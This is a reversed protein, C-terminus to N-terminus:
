TVPPIFGLRVAKDFVVEAYSCQDKRLETRRGLANEVELAFVEQKPSLRLERRAWLFLARWNRPDNMRPDSFPGAQKTESKQKSEKDKEVPTGDRRPGSAIGSSPRDAPGERLADASNLGGSNSAGYHPVTMLKHTGEAEGDRVAIMRSTAESHEKRYGLSMPKSFLKGSRSWDQGRDPFHGGLSNTFNAQLCFVGIRMRSDASAGDL